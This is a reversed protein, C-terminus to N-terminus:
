RNKLAPKYRSCLKKHLSERLTVDVGVHEVCMLILSWGVWDTAKQLECDDRQVASGRKLM